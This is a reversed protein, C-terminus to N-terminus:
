LPMPETHMVAWLEATYQKKEDGKRKIVNIYLDSYDSNVTSIEEIVSVTTNSIETAQVCNVASTLCLFTALAIRGNFKSM